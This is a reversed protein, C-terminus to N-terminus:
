WSYLQFAIMFSTRLPEMRETLYDVEYVLAKTTRLKSQRTMKERKILRREIQREFEEVLIETERAPNQCQHEFYEIRSGEETGHHRESHIEIEQLLHATTGLQQSIHLINEPVNVHRTEHITRLSQSKQQLRLFLPAKYQRSSDDFTTIACDPKEFQDDISPMAEDIGCIMAYSQRYELPRSPYSHKSSNSHITELMQFLRSKEGVQNELLCSQARDLEAFVFLATVEDKLLSLM